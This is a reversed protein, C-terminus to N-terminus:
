TTGHDWELSVYLSPKSRPNHFSNQQRRIHTVSWKKYQGLLTLLENRLPKLEAKKIQFEGTLQKIMLQSDMRLEIEDQGHEIARRLGAIAAYYEATNNTGHGLFSSVRDLEMGEATQISAGIGDTWSQWPV